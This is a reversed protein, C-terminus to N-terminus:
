HNAKQCPLGSTLPDFGSVLSKVTSYKVKAHLFVQFNIHKLAFVELFQIMIYWAARPDTDNQSKDLGCDM